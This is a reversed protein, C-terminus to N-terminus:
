NSGQAGDFYVGNPFVAFEGDAVPGRLCGSTALTVVTIGLAVLVKSIKM